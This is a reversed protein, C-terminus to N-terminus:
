AVLSSREVGTKLNLGEHPCARGRKPGGMERKLGKLGKWPGRRKAM